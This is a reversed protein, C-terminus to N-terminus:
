IGALFRRDTILNAWKFALPDDQKRLLRHFPCYKVLFAQHSLVGKDEM